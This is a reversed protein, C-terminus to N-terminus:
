EKYNVGKYDWVSPDLSETCFLSQLRFIYDSLAIDERHKRGMTGDNIGGIARREGEGNEGWTRRMCVLPGKTM